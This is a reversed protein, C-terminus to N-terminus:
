SIISTNGTVVYIIIILFINKTEESYVTSKLCIFNRLLRTLDIKQSRNLRFKMRSM